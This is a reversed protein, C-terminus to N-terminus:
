KAYLISKIDAKTYNVSKLIKDDEKRMVIWKDGKSSSYSKVGGKKYHEITERVEDLDKCMKSMNSDHVNQFCDDFKEQHGLSLIAGSLVYQLDCLADMEEVKDVNDGDPVDSNETCVDQSLKKFTSQVDSAVSLEKLEEFLLKIRLQRTSLEINDELTNIPQNFNEHFEQVNKIYNM